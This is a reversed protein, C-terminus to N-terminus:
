SKVSITVKVYLSTDVDVNKASFTLRDLMTHMSTDDFIGLETISYSESSGFDFTHEFVEENDTNSVTAQAIKVEQELGTDTDAPATTGTGIAIYNFYATSTGGILNAIRDRGTAVIMNDKVEKEIIKGGRILALEVRGKITLRDKM